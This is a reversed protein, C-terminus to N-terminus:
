WVKLWLDCSGEISSASFSTFHRGVPEIVDEEGTGARFSVIRHHLEDPIVVIREPARLLFFEDGAVAAIVADRHGGAAESAQLDILAPEVQRQGEDFVDGTRMMIAERLRALALFGESIAQRRFQVRSDEGLTRLGHGREDALRQHSGAAHQRWWSGIPAFHLLDAATM